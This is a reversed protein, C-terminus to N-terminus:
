TSQAVSAASLRMGGEDPPQGPALESLIERAKQMTEPETHILEAEVEPPVPHEGRDYEAM